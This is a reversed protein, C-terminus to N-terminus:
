LKKCDKAAVQCMSEELDRYNALGFSLNRM